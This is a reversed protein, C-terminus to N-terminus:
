TGPENTPEKILLRMILATAEILLKNRRPENYYKAKINSDDLDAHDLNTKIKVMLFTLPIVPQENLSKFYAAEIEELTKQAEMILDVHQDWKNSHDSM